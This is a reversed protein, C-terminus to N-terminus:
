VTLLADIMIRDVIYNNNYQVLRSLQEIGCHLNIALKYFLLFLM